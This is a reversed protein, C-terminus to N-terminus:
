QRYKICFRASLSIKTQLRRASLSWVKFNIEFVLFLTYWFHAISLSINESSVYSSINRVAEDVTRGELFENLLFRRIYIRVQYM